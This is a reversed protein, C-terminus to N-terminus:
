LVMAFFVGVVVVAAHLILVRRFAVSRTKSQIIAIIIIAVVIFLIFNCDSTIIAHFTFVFVFIVFIVFVFVFIVVSAMDVVGGCVTLM